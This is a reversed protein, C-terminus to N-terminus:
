VEKKEKTFIVALLDLIAEVILTIATFTWLVTTSSFPNGLIIAACLITLVASAAAWGWKKMKLRLMDVTWQVKAIGVVLIGIGFVVTLLPFTVLFWESNFACFVGALVEILGYTLRQGLAAAEPQATFYRIISVIGTLLLVLGLAIMIGTAFAAPNIFLLVGIAIEGLSLIISGIRAASNKM